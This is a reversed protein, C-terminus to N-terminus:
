GGIKKQEIGGLLIITLEDIMNVLLLVLRIGKWIELINLHMLDDMAM